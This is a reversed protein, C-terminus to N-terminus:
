RLEDEMAKALCDAGFGTAEVSAPSIAGCRDPMGNQAQILISSVASLRWGLPLPYYLDRLSVKSINVPAAVPAGDGLTREIQDISFTREIQDIILPARSARTSLLALVPSILESLGYFEQREFGGRTLVILRITVKDTFGDRLAANRLSSILEMATAVGSNEFYGGDVLRIKEIQREAGAQPATSWDYFAGAPTVWPFRATTIAATSVPLDDLSERAKAELAKDGFPLFLVHDRNFVFPAIVRIRGSGVETTNMVLAPTRASPTWHRLVPTRFFNEVAVLHRDGVEMESMTQDLAAEFAAEFNRTRDLARVPMVLLGQLMDPFMLGAALPSLLDKTLLSDAFEVMSQARAQPPDADELCPGNRASPWGSAQAYKLGAAFTAAGLSGGSVSSIAFLHDAFAPCRDQLGGLVSAAHLAAYIGGGEAAVVYVPYRRGAFRDLDPRQRFWDRFAVEAQPLAGPSAGPDSGSAAGPAADVAGDQVRGAAAAAPAEAPVATRYLVHNDNRDFASIALVAGALMTLYPVRHRDGHSAVHALIPTVIAVFVFLIGLAGMAQPVAVRFTVVLL